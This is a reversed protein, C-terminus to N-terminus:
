HKKSTRWSQWAGTSWLAWAILVPQFLLRILRASDSNLAGFADKQNLYQSINGPFVLIFFLALIWGITTKRQTWLLLALGLAIEVFGSAVVVFDKSIPVFDPVQAQFDIRNFTLHSYGAYIMFLALLVRFINQLTTTQM